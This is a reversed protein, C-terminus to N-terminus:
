FVSLAERIKRILKIKSRSYCLDFTLFLSENIPEETNCLCRSVNGGAIHDSPFPLM